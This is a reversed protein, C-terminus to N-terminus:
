SPRATASTPFLRRRAASQRTWVSKEKSVRDAKRPCAKLVLCLRCGAPCCSNRVNDSIQELISCVPNPFSRHVLRIQHPAKGLAQSDDLCKAFRCRLQGDGINRSRGAEVPCGCPAAEQCEGIEAVGMVVSFEERKRRPYQPEPMGIERGRRKGVNHLWKEVPQRLLDPLAGRY